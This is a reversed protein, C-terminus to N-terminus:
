ISLHAGFKTEQLSGPRPYVLILTVGCSYEKGGSELFPGADWVWQKAPIQNPLGLCHLFLQFHESHDLHHGTKPNRDGQVAQMSGANEALYRVSNFGFLKQTHCLVVYVVFFLMSRKGTLGLLGNLYGAYTLDQCPSGSILLWKIEPYMAKAQRLILSEKHFLNWVDKVYITAVGELNYGWQQDERMGLEASVLRRLVPDHEAAIYVAPPKGLKKKIIHYVSGVGDFMSIIGVKAPGAEGLVTLPLGDPDTANVAFPECDGQSRIPKGAKAKKGNPHSTKKNGKIRSEQSSMQGKNKKPPKLIGKVVKLQKKKYVATDVAAQYRQAGM